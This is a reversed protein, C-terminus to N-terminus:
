KRQMPSPLHLNKLLVKSDAPSEMGPIEERHAAIGPHDISPKLRHALKKVKESDHQTYADEMEAM